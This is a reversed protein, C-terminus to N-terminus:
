GAPRPRRASSAASAPPVVRRWVLRVAPPIARRAPRTAAAFFRERGRGWRFGYQARLEPPLLAVTVVAIGRFAARLRAPAPPRMVAAALDHAAPTVAIEGSRLRRDRDAELDAITEPLTADPIGFLRGVIRMDGHFAEAETPDLPGVLARYTVLITDVLSEHVWLLLPPDLASYPTGAPFPGAPGGLRGRVGAHVRRVAAAARDAEERSGYIIADLARM